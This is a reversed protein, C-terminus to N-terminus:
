TKRCGNEDEGNPCDLVADCLLLAPICISNSCSYEGTECEGQPPVTGPVLSSCMDEDSHDQCDLEGDCRWSLPICEFLYLCQFQEMHCTQPVPTVPAPCMCFSFPSNELETPFSFLFLLWNLVEWM